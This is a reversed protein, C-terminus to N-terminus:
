AVKFPNRITLRGGIVRGDQMDETLLTDCEAELASAVILADYMAIGDREAIELAAEYIDVGIPRVDRCLKRFIALTAAIEAWSRKLKRHATSAFENLVQVSIVGGAALLARAVITKPDDAQTAYILVNTDLFVEGRM